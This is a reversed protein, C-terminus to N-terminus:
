LLLRRDDSDSDSDSDSLGSSIKMLPSVVIMATAVSDASESSIRSLISIVIM